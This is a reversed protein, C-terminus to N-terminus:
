ILTCEFVVYISLIRLTTRVDACKCSSAYSTYYYYAKNALKPRLGTHRVILFLFSHYQFIQNWKTEGGLHQNTLIPPLTEAIYLTYGFGLKFKGSKGVYQQATRVYTCNFYLHINYLYKLKCTNINPNELNAAFM